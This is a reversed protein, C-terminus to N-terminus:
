CRFKIEITTSDISEAEINTIGYKVLISLWYDSDSNFCNMFYEQIETNKCYLTLQYYKNDKSKQIIYDLVSFVKEESVSEEKLYFVNKGRYWWNNKLTSIKPTRYETDITYKETDIYSGIYKHTFNLDDDTDNNTVDVYMWINDCYVCAESHGFNNTSDIASLSVKASMIDFYRCLYVFADSYGSCVCTKKVFAGLISADIESQLDTLYVKLDESVFGNDRYEQSAYYSLWNYEINSCLFDNIYVIKSYDSIDVPCNNKVIRAIGRMYKSYEKVEERTFLYGFYVKEAVTIKTIAYSTADCLVNNMDLYYFDPVDFHLDNIIEIITDYSVSLDSIDVESQMSYLANYLRIYCEKANDKYFYYSYPYLQGYVDRDLFMNNTDKGGKLEIIQPILIEDSEAASVSTGM